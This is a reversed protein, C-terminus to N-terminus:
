LTGSKEVMELSHGYPRTEFGGRGNPGARRKRGPPRRNIRTRAPFGHNNHEHELVQLLYYRNANGIAYITISLHNCFM